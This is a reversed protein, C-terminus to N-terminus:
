GSVNIMRSYTADTLSTYGSNPYTSNEQISFNSERRHTIIQPATKIMKNSSYLVSATTVPPNGLTQYVNNNTALHPKSERKEEYPQQICKLYTNNINLKVGRQNEYAQQIPTKLQFLPSIDERHQSDPDIKTRSGQHNSSRDFESKSQDLRILYGSDTLNKSPQVTRTIQPYFTESHNRAQSILEQDSQNIKM